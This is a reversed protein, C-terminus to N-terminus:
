TYGLAEGLLRYADRHDPNDCSFHLVDLAAGLEDRMRTTLESLPREEPTTPEVHPPDGALANAYGDAYGDSYASM